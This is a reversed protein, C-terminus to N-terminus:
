RHVSIPLLSLEVPLDPYGCTCPLWTTIGRHSGPDAPNSEQLAAESPQLCPPHLVAREQSRLLMKHLCWVCPFLCGGYTHLKTFVHTRGAGPVRKGRPLRRGSEQGWLRRQATQVHQVFPTVRHAGEQARGEKNMVSKSEERNHSGNCAICELPQPTSRPSWMQVCGRRNTPVWPAEPDPAM